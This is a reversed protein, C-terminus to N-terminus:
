LPSSYSVIFIKENLSIKKEQMRNYGSVTIIISSFYIFFVNLYVFFLKPILYEACQKLYFNEKNTFMNSKKQQAVFRSSM